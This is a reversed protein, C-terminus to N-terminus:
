VGRPLLRRMGARWICGCLLVLLVIWCLEAAFATAVTAVDHHLVIAAPWYLSAAFPSAAAIHALWPPYLTVPAFLGGLLFILKQMILWAALSRRVWFTSLGAIAVLMVHVTGGLLVLVIVLPWIAVPPVTGSFALMAAVGGLGLVGLRMAMGGLSESIRALLYPMPRLLHAEIAGSRIDDELHLHLAPVSLTICEAVGVYLVIGTPLTLVDSAHETAVGDWFTGLITMVLLYFLVRGLLVARASLTAAAGMCIMAWSGRVHAGGRVLVDRHALAVGRALAPGSLLLSELRMSRM